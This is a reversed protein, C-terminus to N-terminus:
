IRFILSVKETYYDYMRSGGSGQLKWIHFLGKKQNEGNRGYKTAYYMKFAYVLIGRRNRKDETKHLSFPQFSFPVCRLTGRSTLTLNLHWKSIINDHLFARIQTTVRQAWQSERSWFWWWFNWNEDSKWIKHVLTTGSLEKTRDLTWNM